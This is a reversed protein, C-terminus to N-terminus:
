TNDDIKLEKKKINLTNDCNPKDIKPTISPKNNKVIEKLRINDKSLLELSEELSMNETINVLEGIDEINRLKLSNYISENQKSLMILKNSM